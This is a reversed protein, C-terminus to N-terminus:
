VDCLYILELKADPLCEMVTLTTCQTLSKPTFTDLSRDQFLCTSMVSFMVTLLAFLTNPTILLVTPVSLWCTKEVRYLDRCDHAFINQFVDKSGDGTIKGRIGWKM